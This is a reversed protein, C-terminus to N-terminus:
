HFEPLVVARNSYLIKEGMEQLTRGNNYQANHLAQPTENAHRKPSRHIWIKLQQKVHYLSRGAQKNQFAGNQIGGHILGKM